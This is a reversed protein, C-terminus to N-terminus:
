RFCYACLYTRQLQLKDFYMTTGKRNRISIINIKINLRIELFLALLIGIGLLLTFWFHLPISFASLDSEARSLTTMTVVDPVGPAKSPAVAQLCFLVSLRPKSMWRPTCKTEIQWSCTGKLRNTCLVALCVVFFRVIEDPNGVVFFPTIM